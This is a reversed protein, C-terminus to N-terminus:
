RGRARPSLCVSFELHDHSELMLLFGINTQLKFDQNVGPAMEKAQGVVEVVRACEYAEQRALPSSFSISQLSLFLPALRYASCKRRYPNSREQIGAGMLIADISPVMNGLILVAM